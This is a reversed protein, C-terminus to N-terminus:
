NELDIVIIPREGDVAETTNRAEHAAVLDLVAERQISVERVWLYDSSWANQLDISLVQRANRQAPGSVERVYKVLYGLADSGLLVLGEIINEQDDGVTLNVVHFGGLVDYHCRSVQGQADNNYTDALLLELQHLLKVRVVRQEPIRAPGRGNPVNDLEDFEFLEDSLARGFKCLLDELLDGILKDGEHLGLVDM